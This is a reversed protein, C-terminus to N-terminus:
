GRGRLLITLDTLSKFDQSYIQYMTEKSQYCSLELPVDAEAQPSLWGFEEWVLETFCM